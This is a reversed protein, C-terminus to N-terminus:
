SKFLIWELLFGAFDLIMTLIVKLFRIRVEAETLNDLTKRDDNCSACTCFYVQQHSTACNSDLKEMLAQGDNARISEIRQLKVVDEVCQARIQAIYPIDIPEGKLDYLSYILMIDLLERVYEYVINENELFRLFSM